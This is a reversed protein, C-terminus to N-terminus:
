TEKKSIHNVSKKQTQARQKPNLVSIADNVRTFISIYKVAASIKKLRAQYRNYFPNNIEMISM